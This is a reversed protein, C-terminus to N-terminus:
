WIKQSPYIKKGMTSRLCAECPLARSYNLVFLSTIWLDTLKLACESKQPFSQTIKSHFMKCRTLLTIHVGLFYYDDAIDCELALRNLLWLPELDGYILGRFCIRPFCILGFKKANSLNVKCIRALLDPPTYVLRKYKKYMVDSTFCYKKDYLGRVSYPM